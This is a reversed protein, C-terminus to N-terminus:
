RLIVAAAEAHRMLLSETLEVELSRPDARIVECGAAKLADHQISLDQDLLKAFEEPRVPRSFYYGQAKDCQRARLFALEDPTEVGEAIVRLKLSHAMSIVATVIPADGGSTSIQRVFSQDIKLSDLPFKRLYSLSSYGTGFDDLAVQVGEGRLSQLIVAAAEAHRMLLSETLEVELSRPDLGVERLAAFLNELFNESHFEIASINVAMTTVPLGADVWARAQGCAERFVWAGIATILGSEEAVPIFEAPPVSGRTPHTWRLLAEAGTIAGTKLDIKPQYHLAFENRELARRLGEEIAQREAAQVNMASAFFQYSDRGRKKAQYMATNANNILTDADLGDEPYVSIGISTTIHLDRCDVSHAEAVSQLMKRAAIAADESRQVDLLLVGFEDGGQRGVTDSSRVCAMLRQAISQLLKNGVRHGLSDNIHKFGDLNLFLVAAKNNHRRAWAIAQSLRDNLLVRNPLGTLFDHTASHAKERTMALAVSEAAKRVSINRIAATVLIGEASGLPSLMLEIPFESGDKRRGILEIGTGIQQALADEASRLDDAVLREAFGQPIISTVAQGLLEDRPYGFQKEAQVNLLVIDGGQNVVVMADPAAELLGRYRGEMQALHTEAAKRVSINRIAATV